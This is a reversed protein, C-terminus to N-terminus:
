EFDKRKIFGIDEPLFLTQVKVNPFLGKPGLIRALPKLKGIGTTTCYIQDFNLKDKKIEEITENTGIFDAGSKLALKEEEENAGFFCIRKSKGLGGPLVCTGRIAHDTRKPNVGLKVCLDISENFTRWSYSKMLRIATNPDYEYIPALKSIDIVKKKKRAFASILTLPLRRFLNNM